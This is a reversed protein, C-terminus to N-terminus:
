FPFARALHTTGHLGTLKPWQTQGCLERRSAPDSHLGPLASTSTWLAQPSVSMLQSPDVSSHVVSLISDSITTV